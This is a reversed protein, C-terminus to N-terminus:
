LTRLRTTNNPPRLTGASASFASAPRFPSVHSCGSTALPGDGGGDPTGTTDTETVGFGAEGPFVMVIVTCSCDAAGAPPELTSRPPSKPESPVMVTGCPDDVLLTLM